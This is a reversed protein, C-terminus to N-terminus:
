NEDVGGGDTKRSKKKNKNSTKEKLVILDSLLIERLEGNTVNRLLEGNRAVSVFGTEESVVVM